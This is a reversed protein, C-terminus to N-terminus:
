KLCPPNATEFQNAKWTNTECGTLDSVDAVSTVGKVRNAQFINAVSGERALIGYKAGGGILNGRVINSQSGFGDPSDLLIGAEGDCGTIENNTLINYNSSRLHYGMDCGDGEVGGLRNGHFRNSFASNLAVATAKGNFVSTNIDSQYVYLLDLATNSHILEMHDIRLENLYCAHIGWVFGDIIGNSIHIDSFARASECDGVVIGAGNADNAKLTHGGLNLDVNSAQIRLAPSPCVLDGALYYNGPESLVDGCAVPTAAETASATLLLGAALLGVILFSFRM